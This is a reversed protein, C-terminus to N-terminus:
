EFRLADIPDLKSAKVAPYLGSAVGVGLCFSYGVFIWTWPIIFASAGIYDGVVNGLFIGLIIGLTGGILCILVAEVLFQQLIHFPTAGVAKRLGIEHTRETVSVLMINMLGIAAGLLTIIGIGFGGVRLSGTVEDLSTSLTESKNIEFSDDKLPQDKRVRRMVGRALGMTEGLRTPDDVLVTLDYTVNKGAAMVEAKALPVSIVRDAGQGGFFSGTEKLVGIVRFKNGYAMVFKNLPDEFPFLLSAIEFGIIAVGSGKEIELPSFNRGKELAFGKVMLTNDDVGFLSINPNTKLQGNKVQTNFSVRSYVSVRAELEFLRKFRIAERYTIEPYNKNVLGFRRSREKSGKQQIDFIGAGLDVLGSNVSAKIGDIATLIGVLATIGITIIIATLFARLFNSRIASIGELFNTLLIM